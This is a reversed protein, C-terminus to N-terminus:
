FKATKEHVGVLIKYIKNKERVHTRNGVQGVSTITLHIFLTAAGM